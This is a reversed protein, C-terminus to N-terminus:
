RHIGLGRTPDPRSGGSNTKVADAGDAGRERSSIAFPDALLAEGKGAQFLSKSGIPPYKLCWRIVQAEM